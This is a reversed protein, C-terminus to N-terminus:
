VCVKQLDRDYYIGFRQFGTIQGGRIDGLEWLETEIWWCFTSNTAKGFVYEDINMTEIKSLPYKKLFKDLLYRTRKNHEILWKKNQNAWYDYKNLFEDKIIKSYM